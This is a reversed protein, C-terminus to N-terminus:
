AGLRQSQSEINLTQDIPLEVPPHLPNGFNSRYVPDCVPLSTSVQFADSHWSKPCTALRDAHPLPKEVFRNASAFRDAPAGSILSATCTVLTGTFDFQPESSEEKFTKEIM